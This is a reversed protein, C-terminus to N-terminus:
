RGGSATLTTGLVFSSAPSLLWAVAEAIEDPQGVRGIPVSKEATERMHDSTMGTEVIGPAVANVRIGERAVEAALGKALTDIAGKTAAYPVLGGLGGLRGAVSSLLVIGGGPGGYRTSLRRIAEGACLMVGLVNVNFLATLDEATQEDVRAQTGLIGANAVLARLPGLEREVQVFLGPIAAHDGLDAHFAAAMGGAERIRDVVEEAKARSSGYGVGVAYGDQALRDCIARGIGRSGGTVLAVPPIAQDAISKSM